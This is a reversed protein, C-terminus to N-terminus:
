DASILTETSLIGPMKRISLVFNQIDKTTNVEILLAIDFRGYIKMAMKVDKLGKLKGYVADTKQPSVELLLLAKEM